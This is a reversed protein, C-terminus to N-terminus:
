EQAFSVMSPISPQYPCSRNTIKDMKDCETEKTFGVPTINTIKYDPIWSAPDLPKGTVTEGLDCFANKLWMAANQLWGPIQACLSTGMRIIENWVQRASGLDLCVTQSGIRVTLEEQGTREWSLPIILQGSILGYAMLLLCCTLTLSLTRRLLRCIM